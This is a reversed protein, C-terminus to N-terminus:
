LVTEHTVGGGRDARRQGARREDTALDAGGRRVEGRDQERREGSVPDDCAARRPRGHVHEQQHLQGRRCSKTTRTKRGGTSTLMSFSVHMGGTMNGMMGGMGDGSDGRRRAGDDTGVFHKDFLDDMGKSAQHLVPGDQVRQLSSSRTGGGGTEGGSAAAAGGAGGRHKRAAVYHTTQSPTPHPPLLPALISVRHDDICNGTALTPATPVPLSAAM